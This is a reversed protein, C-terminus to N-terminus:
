DVKTSLKFSALGNCINEPWCASSQWEHCIIPQCSIVQMQTSRTISTYISTCLDSHLATTTAMSYWSKSPQKPKETTRQNYNPKTENTDALNNTKRWFDPQKAGTLHTAPVITESIAILGKVGVAAMHTCSHLMRHWVPNLWGNTIKSM